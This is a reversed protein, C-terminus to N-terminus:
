LRMSVVIVTETAMRVIREVIRWAGGRRLGDEGFHQHEIEQLQIEALETAVDSVHARMVRIQEDLHRNVTDEVAYTCLRIGNRGLLATGTGLILGGVYWLPFIRCRRAGFRGRLAEFRRMHDREHELIHRLVPLFDRYLVRSVAIQASYIAIACFEGAHDVKISNRIFKAVDFPESSAPAAAGLSKETTVLANM